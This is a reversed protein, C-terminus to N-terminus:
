DSCPQAFSHDMPQTFGAEQSGRAVPRSTVCGLSWGIAGGSQIQINHPCNSNNKLAHKMGGYYPFIWVNVSLLYPCSALKVAETM